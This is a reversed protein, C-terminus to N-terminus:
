FGCKPTGFFEREVSWGSCGSNEGDSSQVGRRRKPGGGLPAELTLACTLACVTDFREGDGADSSSASSSSAKPAGGRAVSACSNLLIPLVSPFMRSEGTFSPFPLVSTAATQLSPMFTVVDLELPSSVNVHFNPIAFVATSMVFVPQTGGAVM